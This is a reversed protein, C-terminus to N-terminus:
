YNAATLQADARVGSLAAAGPPLGRRGLLGKMRRLPTQAPACHPCVPEGARTLATVMATCARHPMPTLDQM